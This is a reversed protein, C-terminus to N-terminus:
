SRIARHSAIAERLEDPTVVATGMKMVVVGGALNALHAAELPTAGSALSLSFTALVTDGAGTVDAVQDTGHVPILTPGAAGREFLAMGRSGRTVLVIPCGIANMLSDAAAALADVSDGFPQGAVEELEEENPTVADVGAFERLGHRSDVLVPAERDLASRLTGAAGAWVSGYGYDSLIAAQAATGAERLHRQIAERIEDSKPLQDERDYRVIQQKISHPGGGLIRTKTPTTYGPVMQIHTTDIGREGLIRVLTRGWDDDGVAGVPVPV